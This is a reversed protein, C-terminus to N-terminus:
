ENKLVGIERLGAVTDDTIVQGDEMLDNYAKLTKAKRDELKKGKQLGNPIEKISRSIYSRASGVQQATLKAKEMNEIPQEPECVANDYEEWNIRLEADLAILEKLFPFRDCPTFGTGSLVKLREHLARMRPYIERNRDYLKRVNASLQDHDERKGATDEAKQTTNNAIVVEEMIKVTIANCSRYKDGLYKQLEYEIKDFNRRNLVNQHLIRNRNAQLMLMAGAELNRDKKDTSLWDSCKQEFENLESM